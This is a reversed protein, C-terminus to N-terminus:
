PFTPNNTDYMFPCKLPKLKVKLLPSMNWDDLYKAAYPYHAHRSAYNLFEMIYVHMLVDYQIEYIYVFLIKM